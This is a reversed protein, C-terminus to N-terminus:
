MKLYKKGGNLYAFVNEFISLYKQAATVPLHGDRYNLYGM